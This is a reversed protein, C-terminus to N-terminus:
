RPPRVGGVKREATHEVSAVSIPNETAVYDFEVEEDGSTAKIETDNPTKKVGWRDLEADSMEHPNPNSDRMSYTGVPEDGFFQLEWEIDHWLTSAQSDYTSFGGMVDVFPDISKTELSVRHFFGCEEWPIPSFLSTAMDGYKFGDDFIDYGDPNDGMAERVSEGVALWWGAGASLAGIAEEMLPQAWGPIYTDDEAPYVGHRNSQTSPQLDGDSCEMRYRHGYIKGSTQGTTVATGSISFTHLWASLHDVYGSQHWHLTVSGEREYNYGGPLYPQEVALTEQPCGSTCEWASATAVEATGGTGLIGMSIGGLGASGLAQLATRRDIKGGHRDSM